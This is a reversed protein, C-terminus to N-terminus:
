EVERARELIATTQKTAAKTTKKPSVKDITVAQVAMSGATLERISNSEIGISRFGEVLQPYGSCWKEEMEKDLAKRDNSGDAEGIRVMNFNIYDEGPNVRMRVYYDKWEPKQFHVMGGEVFLTSFEGSVEYGIEELAYKAIESAITPTKASLLEEAERCLGASLQTSGTVVMNLKRIITQEAGDRPEGILDIFEKAQRRDIADAEALENLLESVSELSGSDGDVLEGMVAAFSENTQKEIEKLRKKAKKLAEEVPRKFEALSEANNRNSSAIDNLLMQTTESDAMSLSELAQRCDEELQATQKRFGVIRMLKREQLTYTRAKPGSM